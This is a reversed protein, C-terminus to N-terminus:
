ADPRLPAMREWKTHCPICLAILNSMGNREEPDDVTRAPAIHHVPLRRGFEDQHSSESIGCGQCRRNDRERVAERKEENWGPGYDFSGGSYNPHAEGRRNESCWESFCTELDCFHLDVKEANHRAKEVLSGCQECTVTVRDTWVPSGEGSHAESRWSRQCDDSCFHHEAREAEAPIKEHDTGCWTCAVTVRDRQANASCARSCYRQGREAHHRTTEFEDGCQECVLTERTSGHIQGRHIQMGQESAFDDRGCTPCTHADSM